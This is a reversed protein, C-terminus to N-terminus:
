ALSFESPRSSIVRGATLVGHIGTFDLLQLELESVVDCPQDQIELLLSTTHGINGDILNRDLLQVAHHMPEGSYGDHHM